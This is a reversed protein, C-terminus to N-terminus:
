TNPMDQIRFQWIAIHQEQSTCFPRVQCTMVYESRTVNAKAPLLYKCLSNAAELEVIPKFLNSVHGNKHYCM